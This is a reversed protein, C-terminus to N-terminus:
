IPSSCHSRVDPLLGIVINNKNYESVNLSKLQVSLNTGTQTSSKLSPVAPGATDTGSLTLSTNWNIKVSVNTSWM